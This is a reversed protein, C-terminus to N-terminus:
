FNLKKPLYKFKMESSGIRKWSIGELYYYNENRIVSGKNNKIKYGNNEWLIVDSLNGYWKISEGGTNIKQYKAYHTNNQINTHFFIWKM